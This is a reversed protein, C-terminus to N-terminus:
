PNITLIPEKIFLHKDAEKFTFTAIFCHMVSVYPKERIKNAYIAKVKISSCYLTQQAYLSGKSGVGRGWM